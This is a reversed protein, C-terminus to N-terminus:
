ELPEALYCLGNRRVRCLDVKGRNRHGSLRNLRSQRQVAILIENLMQSLLSDPYIRQDILLNYWLLFQHDCPLDTPWAHPVCDIHLRTAMDAVQRGVALGDCLYM